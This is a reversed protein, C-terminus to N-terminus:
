RSGRVHSKIAISTALFAEGGEDRLWGNKVLVQQCRILTLFTVQRQTGEQTNESMDQTQM